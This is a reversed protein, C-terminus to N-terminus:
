LIIEYSYHVIFILIFPLIHVSDYKSSCIFTHFQSSTVASKVFMRVRFNLLRMWTWNRKESGDIIIVIVLLSGQFLCFPDFDVLWLVCGM